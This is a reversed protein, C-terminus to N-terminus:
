GLVSIIFPRISAINDSKVAINFHYLSYGAGFDAYMTLGFTMLNVFVDKASFTAFSSGFAHEVRIIVYKNNSIAEDLQEYTHSFDSIIMTALDLNCTVLEIEKETSGGRPMTGVIRQGQANYAKEGEALTEPTVTSDSIDMIVEGSATDVKNVGM